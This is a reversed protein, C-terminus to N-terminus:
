SFRHGYWSEFRIVRSYLHSSNSRSTVQETETSGFFIILSCLDNYSTIDCGVSVEHDNREEGAREVHGLRM